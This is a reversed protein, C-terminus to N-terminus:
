RAERPIFHGIGRFRGRGALLPGRVPAAFRVCAHVRLGAPLDGRLKDALPAGAVGPGAAVFVEDPAPFGANVISALLEDEVTRGRKPYRDLVVPTVTAWETAPGIWREPALTRIGEVEDDLRLARRGGGLLLPDVQSFARLCADREDLTLDPPLALAIGRLAGRAGVHAVDTLALYAVHLREGHGHLAEPADDGANALVAARLASTITITDAADQPASLVRRVLLEAFPGDVIEETLVSAEALAYGAVSASLARPHTFRGALLADTIGPAALRVQYAGTASAVFTGEFPGTEPPSDDVGCAIPSRSSGLWSVGEALAGLVPPADVADPWAFVIRPSPPVATPLQRGVRSVANGAKFYRSWEAGRTANRPVWHTASTRREPAVACIIEPPGQRELWTLAEVADASPAEGGAECAAGVLAAHLRYPHPPWEPDAASGFPDAAQYSGLLLECRIALM